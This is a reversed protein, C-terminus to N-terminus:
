DASELLEFSQVPSRRCVYNSHNRRTQPSPPDFDNPQRGARQVAFNRCKERFDVSYQSRLMVIMLIASIRRFESLFGHFKRYFRVFRSEGTFIQLIFSFKPSFWGSIEFFRFFRSHHLPIRTSRSFRQFILIQVCFDANICGLVLGRFNSNVQRGAGRGRSM